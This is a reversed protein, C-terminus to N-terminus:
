GTEEVSRGSHEVGEESQCIQRPPNQSASVQVCFHSNEHCSFNAVFRYASILDLPLAAFGVGAYLVFFFWGAFSVLGITYIPFSVRIEFKLNPGDCPYIDCLTSSGPLPIPLSINANDISEFNTTLEQSPVQAVSLFFFMLLLILFVIIVTCIEYQIAQCIQSSIRNNEAEASEYYFLSFPIVFILM